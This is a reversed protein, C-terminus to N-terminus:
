IGDFHLFVRKGQWKSPLSFHKLYTGVPNDAYQGKYQQKVNIYPPNNDFPYEVNVYLPKDYAYMEWCSPVNITQWNLQASNFIDEQTPRKDPSSAFVFQWQGNLSLYSNSQPMLWPYNYAEDSQMEATSEYPVFTARHATRNIAFVRQNEWDNTSQASLSQVILVFLVNILLRAKTSRSSTQLVGQKM